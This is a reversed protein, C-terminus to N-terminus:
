IVDEVKTLQRIVTNRWREKRTIGLMIREMARQAVLLKQNMNKTTTWTEAGYTM